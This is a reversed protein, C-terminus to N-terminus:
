AGAPQEEHKEEHQEVAREIMSFDIIHERKEGEVRCQVGAKTFGTVTVKRDCHEFVTGIRVVPEQVREEHSM